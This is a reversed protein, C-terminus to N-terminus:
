SRVTLLVTYCVTLHDGIKEDSRTKLLFSEVMKAYTQQDMQRFSIYLTEVYCLGALFKLNQIYSHSKFHTNPKEFLNKANIFNYWYM